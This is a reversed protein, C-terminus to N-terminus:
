PTAEDPYSRMARDLLATAELRNVPANGGHLRWLIRAIADVVAETVDVGGVPGHIPHIVLRLPAQPRVTELSIEEGPRPYPAPVGPQKRM